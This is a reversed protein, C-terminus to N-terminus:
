ASSISMVPEPLLDFQWASRNMPVVVGRASAAVAPSTPWPMWSASLAIVAASAQHDRRSEHYDPRRARPVPTRLCGSRLTGLQVAGSRQRTEAMRASAFSAQCPVLVARMRGAARRPPCCVSTAQRRHPAEVLEPRAGEGLPSGCGNGLRHNASQRDPATAPAPSNASGCTVICM